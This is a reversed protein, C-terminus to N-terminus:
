RNSTIDSMVCFIMLSEQLHHQCPQHKMPCSTNARHPLRQCSRLFVLTHQHAEAVDRLGLQRPVLQRGCVLLAPAGAHAPAAAEAQLRQRGSGTCSGEGGSAGRKRNGVPCPLNSVVFTAHDGTYVIGEQVQTTYRTASLLINFTVLQSYVRRNQSVIARRVDDTGRGSAEPGDLPLQKGLVKDARCCRPRMATQM